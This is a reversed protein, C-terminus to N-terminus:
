ESRLALVPDKKAAMRSPILGAILTLIMSICVLIFAAQPNLVANIGIVGTMSRIVANLPICLLLSVGIGIIGALFGVILTEATFVSSVDRKSAGLSRLVGIEKTREIVSIYTIIGIMISSVILSIAVFAILGYSVADIMTTVGSMLMGVYDTYEIKDEDNVGNNYDQIAKEIVSKDEFSEAYISITNPSSYDVASLKELNEKLTSSSTGSPMFEDYLDAYVEYDDITAIYEDFAAAVAAYGGLGFVDAPDDAAAKIRAIQLEAQEAYKARILKEMQEGILQKIEEDSYSELYGQMTTVDFGYTDAILKVMSERDTLGEMCSDLATKVYEQTPESLISTYIKTKEMDTISSFYASILEAKEADTLREDEDLTFPLGTLVDYNENEPKRQLRVVDSENTKDIILETLASTYGITGGISHASADPNPRVIGSISLEIGNEIVMQMKADDNGIYEYRNEGASAYYDTNLILKFKVGAVSEYSASREKPEIKEQKIVSNFIESVEEESMMGLAYFAVDSIEGNMDLVLVVENASQPWAGYVIDYQEKIMESISEGNRGPLLETFLKMGTMGSEMMTTTIGQESTTGGAFLSDYIDTNRYKGNEDAIYTNIDIDYGYQVTQVHGNLGKESTDDIEKDIFEKFLTLNNEDEGGGFVANFIEYMRPNLHVKGDDHIEDDETRQRTMLLLNMLDSKKKEITIPYATLTERQISNVYNRIGTSLALILAIGIIGISGAFSTLATRGKKTALNNISLSLATFFSMSVKECAIQKKQKPEDETFPNTDDIVRGDRLKIIRTAYEDALEANHTVMIVLREQAIKRLLEMVQIGTESDLAGTPEDALLIDPDNVIARAIAVRQMQGGSLQNPRKHMHQGLGVQELAKAARSRRELRKIGSLTLALEVNALISQHPILNYSQFVFGITHNRYSDWDRDKYKKTSVGNITLEGEDCHDLGGIINLLTTKGSGSQGLVAVFESRRFRLSVGDLACQRVGGTNYVKKINKIELM